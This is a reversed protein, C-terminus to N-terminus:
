RVVEEYKAIAARLSNAWGAIERRIVMGVTVGNEGVGEDFDNDSALEQLRAAAEHGKLHLVKAREREQERATRAGALYAETYLLANKGAMEYGLRLDQYAFNVWDSNDLEGSRIKASLLSANRSSLRMLARERALRRLRKDTDADM